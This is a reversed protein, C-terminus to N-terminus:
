ERGLVFICKLDNSYYRPLSQVIARSKCPFLFISVSVPVFFKNVTLEPPKTIATLFFEKISLSYCKTIAQRTCLQKIPRLKFSEHFWAHFKVTQLKTCNLCYSFKITPALPQNSLRSQTTLQMPKLTSNIFEPIRVLLHLFHRLNHLNQNLKHNM